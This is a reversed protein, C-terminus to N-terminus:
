AAGFRRLLNEARALNIGATQKLGDLLPSPKTSIMADLDAIAQQAELKQLEAMHIGDLIFERYKVSEEDNLALIKDAHRGAASRTDVRADNYRLHQFMVHECPNPIFEGRKWQEDTPWHKGKRSNCCNCAYFLNEYVTALSTFEPRSKPRYHDVGFAAPTKPADPM